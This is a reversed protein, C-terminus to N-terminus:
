AKAYRVPESCTQTGRNRSVDFRRIPRIPASFTRCAIRVLRDFTEGPARDLVGHSAFARPRRRENFTPSFM